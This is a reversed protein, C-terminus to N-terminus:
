CYSPPSATLISSDSDQSHTHRKERKQPALPCKQSSLPAPLSRRLILSIRLLMRLAVFHLTRRPSLGSHLLFFPLFSWFFLGERCLRREGFSSSRGASREASRSGGNQRPSMLCVRSLSFLPPRPWLVFLLSPPCFDWFDAGLIEGSLFNWFCFELRGPSSSFFSMFFPRTERRRQKKEGELGNFASWKELRGRWKERFAASAVDSDGSQRFFPRIKRKLLAVKVM